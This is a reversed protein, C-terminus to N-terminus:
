ASIVFMHGPVGLLKRSDDLLDENIHVKEKDAKDENYEKFVKKARFVEDRTIRRTNKVVIPAPKNSSSRM